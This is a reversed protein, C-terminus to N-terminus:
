EIGESIVVDATWIHWNETPELRKGAYELCSGQPIERANTVICGRVAAWREIDAATADAKSTRFVIHRAQATM